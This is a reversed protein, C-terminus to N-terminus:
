YHFLILSLNFTSPSHIPCSICLRKKHTAKQVKAKKHRLLKYGVIHFKYGVVRFKYGVVHFKYEVVHFMVKRARKKDKIWTFQIKEQPYSYKQKSKHKFRNANLFFITM